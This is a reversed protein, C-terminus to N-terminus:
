DFQPRLNHGRDFPEGGGSGVRCLRQGGGEPAMFVAVRSGGEYAAVVEIPVETLSQMDALALDIAESPTMM